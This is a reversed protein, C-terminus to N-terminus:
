KTGEIVGEEFWLRLAEESCDDLTINGLKGERFAKVLAVAARELDHIQDRGGVGGSGGLVYKERAAIHHLVHNIDNTPETLGFHKCYRFLVLLRMLHNCIGM